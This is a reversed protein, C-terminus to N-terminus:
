CAQEGLPTPWCRGYNWVIKWFHDRRKRARDTRELLSRGAWGLAHSANFVFLIVWAAIASLRGSHKLHLRILSETLMIDRQFDWARGSANGYHVIEGVPAFRIKWDARRMRCCWDTEDGNFFFSEDMVGIQEIVTRRVMLYCGTVVEVDREVDRGWDNMFYRGLWRPRRLRYLGSTLLLLNLLSPYAFCTRQTSRDPNLVRCGMAGVDQNKDLYDVSRHLVDEIVLTDSNLLLLHRGRAIRMAQNNAPAFGANHQNHILKARPFERRVMDASGDTSGNDVVIVEVRLADDIGRFLSELCDHLLDRTNWNVVIVTLDTKM